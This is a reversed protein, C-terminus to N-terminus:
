NSRLPTPHEIREFLGPVCIQKNPAVLRRGPLAHSAKLRIDCTTSDREDCHTVTVAKRATRSTAVASTVTAASSFATLAAFTFSTSLFRQQVTSVSRQRWM